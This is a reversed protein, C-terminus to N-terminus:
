AVLRGNAILWGCDGLHRRWPREYRFGAGLPQVGQSHALGGLGNGAPRDPHESRDSDDVDNRHRRLSDVPGCSRGPDSRWDGLGVVM